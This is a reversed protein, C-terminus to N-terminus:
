HENRTQRQGPVRDAAPSEVDLGNMTGRGIISLYGFECLKNASRVYQAAEDAKRMPM